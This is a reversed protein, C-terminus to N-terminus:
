PIEANRFVGDTPRKNFYGYLFSCSLCFLGTLTLSNWFTNNLTRIIVAAKMKKKREYNELYFLRYSNWMFFCTSIPCASGEDSLIIAYM